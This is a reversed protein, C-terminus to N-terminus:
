SRRWSGAAGIRRGTVRSANSRTSSCGRKWRRWTRRPARGAHRGYLGALRDAVFRKSWTTIFRSDCGIGTKIAARSTGEDLMLILKARRVQAVPANRRRQLALLEERESESLNM